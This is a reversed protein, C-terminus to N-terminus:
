KAIPIKKCGLIYMMFPYVYLLIQRGKYM